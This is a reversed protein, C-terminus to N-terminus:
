DTLRGFVSLYVAVEFLSSVGGTLVLIKVKCTKFKRIEYGFIKLSSILADLYARSTNIFKIAQM